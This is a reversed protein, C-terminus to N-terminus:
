YNLDKELARVQEISIEKKGALPELLRVDPHNRNDINVCSACAGCFDHAAGACHIAKALGFAVSRKGVGEPGIFVYAHHLRDQALAQRLTALQTAHGTIDSSFPM